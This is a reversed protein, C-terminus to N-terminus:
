WKIKNNVKLEMKLCFSFQSHLQWANKYKNLLQMSFNYNFLKLFYVNELNYIHMNIHINLQINFERLAKLIYTSNIKM